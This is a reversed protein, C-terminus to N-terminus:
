PDRKGKQIAGLDYEGITGVYCSPMLVPTMGHAFSINNMCSLAVELPSWDMTFSLTLHIHDPVFGARSLQWGKATASRRLIERVKTWVEISSESIRWNHVFVLHLNCSHRARRSFQPRELNVEPNIIQLESLAARLRSDSVQHHNLQAAVYAEAKERTTSGISRLDYNRQFARPFLSRVIYQLRGKILLAFATLGVPCARPRHM